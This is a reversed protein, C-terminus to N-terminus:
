GTRSPRSSRPRSPSTARSTSASSRSPARSCWRAARRRPADRARRRGGAGRGAAAAWPEEAREAGAFIRDVQEYDLRADSRIRSRHFAARVVEPGHLEMEVTVALRETGPVLSCADNSLARPLMPEVAGPVYVSTARRYAERDLQSGPRM